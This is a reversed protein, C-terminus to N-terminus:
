SSLSHRDLWLLLVVVTYALRRSARGARAGRWLAAVESERLFPAIERTRAVAHECLERWPGNFYSRLPVSFGHKPRSWAAEPLKQRALTRLLAKPEPQVHREAPQALAFEALANDLLPVRVELGHAMSARDVKVLCNESLYTWLDARMLSATDMNGGFARALQRWGDLTSEPRCARLAEPALYHALSKRSGLWPGLEVRRYLLMEQGALSRRLLAGPAFGRGIAARLWRRARSDPYRDETDLFRAYGGFLEDGGDGSLSVTVHRRALAAVLHTPIQSSDGFPEDYMEPLKPIVALADAPALYLETHNTELHAAVAKAHRAEDYDSEAFGISFTRVPRQSQAQMLAVVTSSDVGGSLFAGLPVDAVMQGGIARRLETELADAAAEDSLDGYRPARASELARWYFTPAPAVGAPTEPGLSLWTGPLLKSIGRYISHPLPVYGYRMFSALVNRDVEGRWGPHARLAKLESGFVFIDGLWGYYLPKEGLRDRALSLRREARDWLALAFMGTLKKLAAEIGWAEIAALVTETDAHGRWAVDGLQKRLDLHNYIEGNFAIVYRGGASHMPQHGAPSLDLISLRRHALALGATEDLWAGADDPGRSYLAMAMRQAVPEQIVCGSRDLFGTVGCM